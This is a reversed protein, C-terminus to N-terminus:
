PLMRGQGGLRRHGISREHSGEATRKSEHRGRGDDSGDQGRRARGRGLEALANGAVLHLDLDLPVPVEQDDLPDDVVESPVLPVADVPVDGHPEPVVLVM